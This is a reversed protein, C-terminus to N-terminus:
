AGARDLDALDVDALLGLEGVAGADLADREDAEVLVPLWGAADDASPRLRRELVGETTRPCRSSDAARYYGSGLRAAALILPWTAKECPTLTSCARRRQGASERGPARSSRFPDSGM